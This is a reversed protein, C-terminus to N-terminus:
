YHVVKLYLGQPPATAGLRSDLPRALSDRLDQLTIKGRGLAWLAGMILRVMQKLFGNGVIRLVYYEDLVEAWHGSAQMHLIECEYISRVTTEVDTGVCQYNVFDHSGLLLKCGENMVSFDLDFDVSTVLESAFPSMISRSSFVYNYEKSKASFIPHFEKSCEEVDIVRIDTPLLSNLAKLLNAPPIAVPIEIKVVQGLAHVGSDTRGSGISKIEDSHSLTKLVNNLEGQITKGNKQVQFGQFHTGKYQLILKYINLHSGLEM